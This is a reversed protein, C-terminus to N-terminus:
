ALALWVRAAMTVLVTVGLWRWRWTNAHIVDRMAADDLMTM